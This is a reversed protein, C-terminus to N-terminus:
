LLVNKQQLGKKIDQAKTEVFGELLKFTVKLVCQGQSDKTMCQKAQSNTLTLVKEPITTICDIPMSIDFLTGTCRQLGNDGELVTEIRGQINSTVKLWVYYINDKKFLMPFLMIGNLFVLILDWHKSPSDINVPWEVTIESDSCSEMKVAQHSSVAHDELHVLSVREDCATHPCPVLKYMCDSEHQKM